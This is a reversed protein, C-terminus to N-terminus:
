RSSRPSPFGSQPANFGRCKDDRTASPHPTADASQAHRRERTGVSQMAANMRGGISNRQQMRGGVSNRQKMLRNVAPQSCAWERTATQRNSTWAASPLRTGGGWWTLVCHPAM